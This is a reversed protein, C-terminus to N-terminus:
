VCNYVCVIAFTYSITYNYDYIDDDHFVYLNIWPLDAAMVYLLVSQGIYIEWIAEKGSNLSSLM